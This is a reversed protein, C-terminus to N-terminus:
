INAEVRLVLMAGYHIMKSYKVNNPNQVSNSCLPDQAQSHLQISNM